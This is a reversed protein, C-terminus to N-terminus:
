LVSHIPATDDNNQAIREYIYSNHIRNNKGKKFYVLAHLADYSQACLTKEILDM